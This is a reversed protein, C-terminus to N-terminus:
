RGVTRVLQALPPHGLEALAWDLWSGESDYFARWLEVEGRGENTLPILLTERSRSAPLIRRLGIGGAVGDVTEDAQETFQWAWGNSLVIGSVNQISEASKRVLAALAALKENLPLMAWPTLIWLGGVHDMRLWVRSVDRTQLSKDLLRVWLRGWEDSRTASGSLLPGGVSSPRMSVRLSGGTPGPVTRDKGDLVTAAAAEAVTALWAEFLDSSDPPDGTEGTIHVGFRTELQGVRLFAADSYERASVSKADLYINQAEVMMPSGAPPTLLLDAFNREGAAPEFEVQCGARVALGAVEAQLMAHAWNTSDPNQGVIRWFQESQACRKSLVLRVYVSFLDVAVSEVDNALWLNMLPTGRGRSRELWDMGLTNSLQSIAARGVERGAETLVVSHEIARGWLEWTLPIEGALM